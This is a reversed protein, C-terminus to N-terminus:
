IKWLYLNTLPTSVTFELFSFLTITFQTMILDVQNPKFSVYMYKESNGQEGEKGRERKEDGENLRDQDRGSTNTNYIKKRLTKM